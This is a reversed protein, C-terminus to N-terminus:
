AAASGVNFDLHPCIITWEVGLIEKGREGDAPKELFADPCSAVLTGLNDRLLLPGIGTGLAEDARVKASLLDNALSSQMLTVVVKGARNQNRARATEGDNGVKLAFSPEDRSVKIMSGDFFGQIAIGMFNLLMQAPDYTTTFGPM